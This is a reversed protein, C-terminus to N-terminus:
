YAHFICAHFNHLKHLIMFKHHSASTKKTKRQFTRKLHSGIVFQVRFLHRGIDEVVIDVFERELIKNVPVITIRLADNSNPANATGIPMGYCM